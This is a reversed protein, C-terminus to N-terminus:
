AVKRINRIKVGASIAKEIAEDDDEWVLTVAPNTSHLKFYNMYKDGDGENCVIEDFCSDMDYYKLTELARCAKADTLLVIKTFTERNKLVMRLAEAAPGLESKWLLNCYAKRKAASIKTKQKMTLNPYVSIIKQETIRREERLEQNDLGLNELASRYAASNIKDTKVLTGDLDFIAVLKGKKNSMKPDEKPQLM